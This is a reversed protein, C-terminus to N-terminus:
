LCKGYACVADPDMPYGTSAIHGLGMAALNPLNPHEAAIVHGLTNAGEDGYAAADPLSGCGGADLVTLFIRKM